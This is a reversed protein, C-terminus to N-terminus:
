KDGVLVTMENTSAFGTAWGTEVGISSLAQKVTSVFSPVTRDENRYIFIGHPVGFLGADGIKPDTKFGAAAFMQQIQGAYRIAEGGASGYNVSVHVTKGGSSGGLLKVAQDRMEPTITRDQVRLELALVNSRLVLNNSNLQAVTIQMLVTNSEAVAARERAQAVDKDSEAAEFFELVLGLILVLASLRKAFAKRGSMESWDFVVEGAVGILVLLIGPHRLIFNWCTSFISPNNAM